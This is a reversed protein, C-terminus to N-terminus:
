HRRAIAQIAVRAEGPLASVEVVARAPRPGGVRAAYVENFTEDHDIDTLYVTM